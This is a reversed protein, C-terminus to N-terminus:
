LDLGEFLVESIRGIDQTDQWGGDPDAERWRLERAWPDALVWVGKNTRVIAGFKTPAPLPAQKTLAHALARPLRDPNSLLQRVLEDDLEYTSM